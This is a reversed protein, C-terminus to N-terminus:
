HTHTHTHTHAGNIARKEELASVDATRVKHCLIQAIKEPEEIHM